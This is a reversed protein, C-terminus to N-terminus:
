PATGAPRLVPPAPARGPPPHAPGHTLPPHGPPLARAAPAAAGADGPVVAPAQRAEREGRTNALRSADHRQMRPRPRFAGRSGDTEAGAAASGPGTRIAGAARQQQPRGDDAPGPSPERRALLLSIGLLVVAAGVLALRRRRETVVARRASAQSREMM